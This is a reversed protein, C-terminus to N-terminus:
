SGSGPELTLPIIGVAYPNGNFVDYGRAGTAVLIGNCIRGGLSQDDMLVGYTAKQLRWAATLADQREKKNKGEVKAFCVLQLDINFEKVGDSTPSMYSTADSIRIGQPRTISQYITDHLEIEFLADGEGAAAIQETLFDFLLFEGPKDTDIPM